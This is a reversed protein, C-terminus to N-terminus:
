YVATPAYMYALYFFNMLRLSVSNEYEICRLLFRLAIEQMARNIYQLLLTLNVHHYNCLELM